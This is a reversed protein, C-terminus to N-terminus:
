LLLRCVLNERSQLESTHEESRDQIASLTPVIDEAAMGFALLQQQAEIWVQRPFPSTAGFERQREMQENAAEASGLLTTLAARSTQELTNYQVGTAITAATLAVMGAAAAGSVAILTRGVDRGTQGLLDLAKSSRGANEAAAGVGETAKAAEEMDKRFQDVEARLRVTLSRDAM